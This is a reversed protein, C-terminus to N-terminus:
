SYQESRRLTMEKKKVGIRHAREIEDNETVLREKIVQKIKAENANWDEGQAQSLQDFPRYNSRSRDELDRVKVPLSEHDDIMTKINEDNVVYVQSVKADFELLKEEITHFQM